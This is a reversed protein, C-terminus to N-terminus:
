EIWKKQEPTKNLKNKRYYYQANEAQGLIFDFTNCLKNENDEFRHSVLKPNDLIISKQMQVILIDIKLVLDNLGFKAKELYELRKIEEIDM